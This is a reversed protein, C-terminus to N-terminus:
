GITTFQTRKKKRKRKFNIPQFVQSVVYLVLIGALVPTLLYLYSLEKINESGIVAVLATAGAPPHVTKTLKMATITLSVALAAAMPSGDTFFAAVTVGIFAGILHGCFLNREKSLPSDPLGFLLVCSAGFPGILFFTDHQSFFFSSLVGILSIGVFSGILTYLLNSKYLDRYYVYRSIRYGRELDLTKVTTRMLEPIYIGLKVVLAERRFYRVQFYRYISLVM